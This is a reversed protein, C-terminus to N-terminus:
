ELKSASKKKYELIIRKKQSPLTWAYVQTYKLLRNM